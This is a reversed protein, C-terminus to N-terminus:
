GITQGDREIADEVASVVYASLNTQTEKLWLYVPLPCSFTVVVRAGAFVENRKM